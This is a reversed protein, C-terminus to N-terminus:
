EAIGSCPDGDGPLLPRVELRHTASAVPSAVWPTLVTARSFLPALAAALDGDATGCRTALEGRVPRGFRDLAPEAVPWAVPTAGPWAEPPPGVIVAYAAPRYAQEPGLESGLWSSLDLLRNWFTAFAAPTGPVAQPCAGGSCPAAAASGVLDYDVGDVSLQLRAAAAGPLMAGGSFDVDSRLIGADRAAAVLRALGAASVARQVIPTVLPGPYIEAVAGPTLVRGDATIVLIPLTTFQSRPPLAQTWSARVVFGTTGALASAIPASTGTSAATPTAPPAPPVSPAGGACGVLIVAAVALAGPLLYHRRANM